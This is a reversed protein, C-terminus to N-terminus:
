DETVSEHVLSMDQNRVREEEEALEKQLQPLKGYQLEAARNLDYKQQAAQIERNMNEIEERLASLREVSSKENEWQAKQSAFEDHLEALEKQ